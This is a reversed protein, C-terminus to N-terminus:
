FQLWVNEYHFYQNEFHSILYGMPDDYYDSNLTGQM